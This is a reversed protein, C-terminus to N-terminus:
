WILNFAFDARMAFAVVEAGVVAEITEGPSRGWPTDPEGSRALISAPSPRDPATRPRGGSEPRGCGIRLGAAAGDASYPTYDDSWCRAAPM